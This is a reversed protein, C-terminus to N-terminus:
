RVELEPDEEIEDDRSETYASSLTTTGRKGADKDRFACAGAYRGAKKAAELVKLTSPAHSSVV